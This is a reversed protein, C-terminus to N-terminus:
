GLKKEFIRYKKYPDAGAKLLPKNMAINDELVWGMEADVYGLKQAEKKAEVFLLAPIGHKRYEPLIGMTIVRVRTIYKKPMLLKLFGFPFLQGNPIKQFVQNFDPLTTIFGVEKGDVLAFTVLKEEVLPKMENILHEMEKEPMPVFGWNKEWAKNYIDIIIQREAVWNKKNLSRYTIRNAEQIKKAM